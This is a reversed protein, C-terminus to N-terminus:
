SFPAWGVPNEMARCSALGSVVRAPSECIQMSPSPFLNNKGECLRRATSEGQLAASALPLAPLLRLQDQHLVMGEAQRWHEEQGTVPVDVRSARPQMIDVLAVQLFYIKHCILLTQALKIRLWFKTEIDSDFLIKWCCNMSYIINDLSFTIAKVRAVVVDQFFM